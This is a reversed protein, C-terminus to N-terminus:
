IYIVNKRRTKHPWGNEKNDTYLLIVDLQATETPANHRTTDTAVTMHTVIHCVSVACYLIPAAMAVVTYAPVAANYLIITYKTINFTEDGQM